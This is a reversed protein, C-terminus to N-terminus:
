KSAVAPKTIVEPPISKVNVVVMDKQPDYGDKKCTINFNYTKVNTLRISQSGSVQLNGSWDGSATCSQANQSMWSLLVEQAYNLTLPGDKGNGKLDVTPPLYLTTFNLPGAWVKKGNDAFIKAYYTTKPKLINKFGFTSCIPSNSPGITLNTSCLVPEECNDLNQNTSIAVWVSTVSNNPNVCTKLFASTDEISNVTFETIKPPRQELKVGLYIKACNPDYQDSDFSWGSFGGGSSRWPTFQPEGVQFTCIQGPRADAIQLGARWDKLYKNSNSPWNRTEIKIRIADLDGGDDNNIYYYSWDSWGGGESAWPTCAINGKNEDCIPPYFDNKCFPSIQICIRFDNDTFSKAPDLYLRACDFDYYNLDVAWNTWSSYTHSVYGDFELIGLQSRCGHDSVQIGLQGDNDEYDSAFVKIGGLIFFIILGGIILNKKNRYFNLM